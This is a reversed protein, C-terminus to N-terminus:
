WIGSKVSLALCAAASVGISTLTAVMGLVRMPLVHPTQSLGYAHLIRGALLVVGIGHLWPAGLKLAEALGMLVLGLPAYETFNAHVRMRRLLAKDGGDGIEVRGTRRAAITRLSLMIFLFTLLGAYFATIPM